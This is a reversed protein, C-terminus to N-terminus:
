RAEKLSFSQNGYHIYDAWDISNQLELVKTRGAALSRGVTKGVLLAGYFETAFANAATDGVPCYTGIYCPGLRPASSVPECPSDIAHLCRQALSTSM